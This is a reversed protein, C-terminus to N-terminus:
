HLSMQLFTCSWHPFLLSGHPRGVSTHGDDSIWICPIQIEKGVYGM